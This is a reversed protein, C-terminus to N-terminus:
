STTSAPTSASCLSCQPSPLFASALCESRNFDAVDHLTCLVSSTRLIHVTGIQTWPPSPLPFSLLAMPPISMARPVPLVHSWASIGSFGRSVLLLRSMSPLWRLHLPGPVSLINRLSSFVFSNPFVAPHQTCGLNDCPLYHAQQLHLTHQIRLLRHCM